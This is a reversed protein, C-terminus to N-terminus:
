CKVGIDPPITRGRLCQNTESLPWGYNGEHGNSGRLLPSFEARHLPFTCPHHRHQLEQLICLKYRLNSTRARPPSMPQYDKHEQVSRDWRNSIPTQPAMDCHSMDPLPMHCVGPLNHSKHARSRKGGHSSALFAKDERPRSDLQYHEHWARDWLSTCYHRQGECCTETCDTRPHIINHGDPNLRAWLVTGFLIRNGAHIMALSDELHRIGQPLINDPPSHKGTVTDQLSMCCGIQNLRDTIM